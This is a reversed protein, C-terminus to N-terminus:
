QVPGGLSQYYEFTKKIGTGLGVQPTWNLLQVARQINPVKRDKDILAAATRNNSYSANNCVVVSAGGPQDFCIPIDVGVAKITEYALNLITIGNPNGFEIVGFHDSEMFAVLGRVIDDIYCFSDIQSGDGWVSLFKGDRINRCFTPIVRSDDAAMRPGYVNGMRAVKAWGNDCFSEGLIKGQIYTSGFNVRDKVKVSSAFLFKASHKEALNLLRITANSNVELTMAAHKYTEAPATPSALHFIGDVPGCDFGHCVDFTDFYFNKFKQLHLINEERGIVNSDFCVVEHGATVLAECLHSGIFGSGGTVLYRM